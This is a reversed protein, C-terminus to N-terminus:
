VGSPASSSAAQSAPPSHTETTTTLNLSNDSSVSPTSDSMADEDLLDPELYDRPDYELRQQTIAVDTIVDLDDWAYEVTAADLQHQQIQLMTEAM